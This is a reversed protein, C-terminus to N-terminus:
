PSQIRRFRAKAANGFHGWETQLAEFKRFRCPLLSAQQCTKTWKTPKRSPNLKQEQIPYLSSALMLHVYEDDNCLPEILARPSREKTSRQRLHPGSLGFKPTLVDIDYGFFKYAAQSPFSHGLRNVCFAQIRMGGLGNLVYSKIVVAPIRFHWQLTARKYEFSQKQCRRRCPFSVVRAEVNNNSRLQQAVALASDDISSALPKDTLLTDVAM